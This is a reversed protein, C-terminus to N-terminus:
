RLRVCVCFYSCVCVCVGESLPSVMPMMPCIGPVACSSTPARKLLSVTGFENQATWASPVHPRTRATGSKQAGRPRPHGHRLHDHVACVDQVADAAPTRRPSFTPPRRVCAVCPSCFSDVARSFFVARGHRTRLYVCVSHTHTGSLSLYVCARMSPDPGCRPAPSPPCPTSSCSPPAPCVASRCPTCATMCRSGIGETGTAGKRVYGSLCVCLSFSLSTRVCVCM